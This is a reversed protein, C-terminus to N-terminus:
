NPITGIVGEVFWMMSLMEEDTLQEGEAVKVSGDQANIPGYFVDWNGSLIEQKKEEVMQKVEDAVMPGFPAVDVIGTNMHGWYAESKWTGEKVAKVVDVYYPGWNWVASTLVAKPAMPGMNSNYGIGYVGREEAAQMPGPTDQHMAIVDCNDDLLAKAADKEKVPDYWTNTWIVKVTADPNAARVGLTFANIGRIVEPIPHAAVYGIQNTETQMGAALGTLYRAQYMRGFYNGVNESTKYGSCHLFTVDPYREAVSLTSDMYGFSTTFIVQAGEQVLQQIYTESAPGEQVNELYIVEVWPLKDELYQRGLDHAYTWGYDGTPSLYVFGVKMKEEGADPATTPEKDGGCGVALMAMALVLVLMLMFKGKKFM